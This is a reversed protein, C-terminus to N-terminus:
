NPAALQREARLFELMQRIDAPLPAEVRIEADTEPHRFTIRWAHLLQRNISVVPSWSSKADTASNFSNRGSYLKDCFVPSGLHALHVRIQHTRGTKPFVHVAALGQFREAVHFETEAPKASRDDKRISMKERQYPHKGIPLCIRDRDAEPAPTVIAFYAKRVTRREFQRNLSSHAQDNKAIIIAGSTDRDLRHVIGPRTDGGMSSLQPFHFKLAATLTGSWHGKAPHVVMGPPKNVVALHDDQYLIDLPIEEALSGSPTPAPLAIKISEQGSIRYSPKTAAGNITVHGHQILRGLKVRSIKPYRNALIVDLRKGHESEDPILTETDPTPMSEATLKQTM